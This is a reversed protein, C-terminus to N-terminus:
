LRLGRITPTDGTESDLGPGGAVRGPLVSLFLWGFSFWESALYLCLFAMTWPSQGLFSHFIYRYYIVLWTWLAVNCFDTAVFAFRASASMDVWKMNNPKSIRIASSLLDNMREKDLIGPARLAMFSKYVFHCLHVLAYLACVVILVQVAYARINIESQKLSVSWIMAIIGLALFGPVGAFWLAILASSHKIIPGWKRAAVVIGFYVLSSAFVTLFRCDLASVCTLEVASTIARVVVYMWGFHLVIGFILRMQLEAKFSLEVHRKQNASMKGRM